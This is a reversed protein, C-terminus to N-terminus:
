DYAEYFYETDALIGHAIPDPAIYLRDDEEDSDYLSEIEETLEFIKDTFWSDSEDDITERLVSLIFILFGKHHANVRHFLNKVIRLLQKRVSSKVKVQGTVIYHYNEGFMAKLEGELEPDKIVGSFGPLYNKVKRRTISQLKAGDKDIIKDLLSSLDVKDKPVMSSVIKTPYLNVREFEAAIEKGLTTQIVDIVDDKKENQLNQLRKIESEYVAMDDRPKYTYFNKVDSIPVPCKSRGPYKSVLYEVNDRYEVNYDGLGLWSANYFEGLTYVKVYSFNRTLTYEAFKISDEKSEIYVELGDLDEDYEREDEGELDDNENIADMDDEYTDSNPDIYTPPFDFLTIDKYILEEFEYEDFEENIIDINLPKAKRYSPLNMMLDILIQVKKKDVINRVITTILYFVNSSSYHHINFARTLPHEKKIDWFRKINDSQARFLGRSLVTVFKSQSKNIDLTKIISWFMKDKGEYQYYSKFKPDPAMAESVCELLKFLMDIQTDLPVKQIVSSDFNKFTEAFEVINGVGTVVGTKEVMKKLNELDMLNLEENNALKMLSQYEFHNVRLMSSSRYLDLVPVQGISQKGLLDLDIERPSSSSRYTTQGLENGICLARTFSGEAGLLDRREYKKDIVQRGKHYNDLSLVNYIKSSNFTNVLSDKNVQAIRSMFLERVVALNHQNYFNDNIDYVHYINFDVNENDFIVRQGRKRLTKIEYDSRYVYSDTLVIGFSSSTNIYPMNMESFSLKPISEGNNGYEIRAIELGRSDCFIKYLHWIQDLFNDDYTFFSTVIKGDRVAHEVKGFKTYLTFDSSGYWVTTGRIQSRKYIAFPLDTTFTTYDDLNKIKILEDITNKTAEHSTCTRCDKMSSIYKSYNDELNDDSEAMKLLFYHHKLNEYSSKWFEFQELSYFQPKQSSIFHRRSCMLLTYTWFRETTDITVASPIFFYGSRTKVLDSREMKQLIKLKEVADEGPISESVYQTLAEWKRPNRNLLSYEHGSNHIVLKCVDDYTLNLGLNVFTHYVMPKCTKRSVITNKEFDITISEAARMYTIENSYPEIYSHEYQGLMQFGLFNQALDRISVSKTLDSSVIEVKYFLTSYLLKFTDVNMLSYEFKSMRLDNFYKLSDFLTRRENFLSLTNLIDSQEKTLDLRQKHKVYYPVRYNLNSGRGPVYEGNFLNFMHIRHDRARKSEVTDLMVEQACSGLLVIHIPHINFVGGFHLPISSLKRTRPLHYAKRLLESQTLMASYCQLYSGGNHFIDVVLSVVSCIDTYWGAGTPNFSVNTIFKYTMPILKRNSYMISIIEFSTKSLVSKKRSMLHNCCKQFHEYQSFSKVGAEYSQATITGGSDDSHALLNYSLGQPRAVYANFYNQSAAHFLSSMFNYIGMMFSYPMVLEYDGDSRKTLHRVLDETSPNKLLNDVYHAQIRVRKRFMLFWVKLFYTVFSDPLLNRMGVVFYLYKWINSRPAWKRCDLTCYITKTSEEKTEFIKQHIVKPRIHSKKHILENPVKSCLFKMMREIPQQLIKSTDTMVYIERSGKAGIKDKVDFEFAPEDLESIYDKFTVDFDRIKKEFDERRSYPFCNILDMAAIKFKEDDFIVDFGKSGWFQGKSSRMGRSTKVDTYTDGMISDFRFEVDSKSVVSSIQDACHNGILFALKPDFKFDDSYLETGFDASGMDVTSLRLIELPDDTPYHQRFYDHTELVSKLNRLHENYNDVPSKTMFIAEDFKEACLEFNDIDFSWFIDFVKQSQASEYLQQYNRLFLRQLLFFLSDYDYEVMNTALDLVDSCEGTSNFYLYRFNSLWIELKRKQSLAALVKISCFKQFDVLSLDSEPYSSIYYNSFNSYLEMGVKLYDQKLQRWPMIVYDQSGISIIEISPTSMLKKMTQSIPFIVKFLRSRRTGLIKKGGKVILLANSYGMTDICFDNKNLKINSYYMLSYCMNSVFQLTHALDTRRFENEIKGLFDRMQTLNKALNIGVPETDSLVNDSTMENRVQFLELILNQYLRELQDLDDNPYIRIKNHEKNYHEMEFQFNEKVYSLPLGIRNSYQSSTKEGLAKSLEQKLNRLSLITEKHEPDLDEPLVRQKRLNKFNPIRKTKSQLSSLEQEIRVIEDYDINREIYTSPKNTIGKARSLLNNTLKLRSHFNVKDGIKTLGRTPPFIFPNKIAKLVVQSTKNKNLLNQYYLDPLLPVDVVLKSDSLTSQDVRMLRPILMDRYNNDDFYIEIDVERDQLPFNSENSGYIKFPQEIQPLGGRIECINLIDDSETQLLNLMDSKRIGDESFQTYLTDSEVNYVIKYLLSRSKRGFSKQLFPIKSKIKKRLFLNFNRRVSAPRSKQPFLSPYRMLESKLQISTQHGSNMLLEPMTDNIYWNLHFFDNKLSSIHQYLDEVMTEDFHSSARIILEFLDGVDQDLSLCLYYDHVIFGMKRLHHVEHDYKGFSEKNRVATAYM